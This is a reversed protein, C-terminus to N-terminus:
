RVQGSVNYKITIGTLSLPVKVAQEDNYRLEYQFENVKPYNVRKVYTRIIDVDYEITQIDAENMKKRYNNIAMKFSTKVDSDLVSYLTLNSIHKCYNIANLHLKQSKLHWPIAHENLGDFDYYKDDSKDLNYLKGGSLVLIENDVVFIKNIVIESTLPWWSGTRMDFMYAIKSGTKYCIIWYQYRVLKVPEEVFLKFKDFINDSLYNLVQDTSAVFNQYSLAVLGRDTPFIVNTGDYSTTVDAGDKLGVQLKSKCYSYAGDLAKSYWVSDKTFIAIETSSIPQLGTISQEFNQKKIKPLYFKFQGNENRPESIMLETGTSFYYNSLFSHKTLNNFLFQYAYDNTVIDLETVTSIFSSYIEVVNNVSIRLPLSFLHNSCGIIYRYDYEPFDIFVNKIRDYIGYPIAVYDLSNSIHTKLWYDNSPRTVYSPRTFIKTIEFTKRTFDFYTIDYDNESTTYSYLAGGDSIKLDVLDENSFNQNSAYHTINTAGSLREYVDFRLRNAIVLSFDETSFIKIAFKTAYTPRDNPLGWRGEEEGARIYLMNDALDLQAYKEDSIFYTPLLPSIDVIETPSNYKYSPRGDVVTYTASVIRWGSEVAYVIFNGDETFKPNQVTLGINFSTTVNKGDYSYILLGTKESYALMSQFGIRDYFDFSFNYINDNHVSVSFYKETLLREYGKDFNFKRAVDFINTTVESGYVIPNLPIDNSYLVRKRTQNTLINESENVDEKLGSYINTVPVYLYDKGNKFLNETKDYVKLETSTFIFLLGDINNVFINSDSLALENLKNYNEDCILLKLPNDVIYIYLNNLSWFDLIDLSSEFPNGRPKISPRSRLLGNSNVYVNNCDEFTEQDVALFNEDVKMGKWNYHNFFYDKIDSSSPTNVSFPRRNITKTSM